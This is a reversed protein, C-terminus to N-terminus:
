RNFKKVLVELLKLLKDWELQEVKRRQETARAARKQEETM